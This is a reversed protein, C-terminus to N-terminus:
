ALRLSRYSDIIEMASLPPPGAEGDGRNQFWHAITLLVAQRLDQPVSAGTPGFGSKFRIEIGNIPRSGRPPLRGARLVARCPKSAADLYYHAADYVSPTDTDGYTIIDDLSSVPSLGLSLGPYNPWCDIFLSWSQTILRLGSRQEVLRRAAIILTSIYADDDVHPVRLHAKAEALTIPEAVPPATLILPM